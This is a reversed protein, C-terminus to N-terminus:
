LQDDLPKFIFYTLTDNKLTSDQYIVSIIM